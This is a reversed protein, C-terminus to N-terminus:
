EFWWYFIDVLRADSLSHVIGEGEEDEDKKLSAQLSTTYSKHSLVFGHVLLFGSVWFVSRKKIM